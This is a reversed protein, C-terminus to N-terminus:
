LQIIPLADYGCKVAFNNTKKESFFILLKGDFILFGIQMESSLLIKGIIKLKKRANRKGKIKTKSVIM